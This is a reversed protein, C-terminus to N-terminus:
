KKVPKLRLIKDKGEGNSTSVYLYGDAGMTVARLRGQDTVVVIERKITMDPNLIFIRLHAGKLNAVALAGDLQGWDPGAIIGAGSVATTPTGSSWIASISEPFKQKDTMSVSENYSGPVPDWGFNGASLPNIEDDKDPGHETSLGVAGAVQKAFFALGQLNRHGFSYIRSDFPAPLNGAVASGNRDVRLVKGGLSKPDQPNTGKTADGTGIWLFGDPGFRPRCGSHRGGTNAPLGTVIDTRDSLATIDATVKFRAVRIDGSKTNFCAYLYRNQAFDPDLTMGLMGGEGAVKVDAPAALIRKKGEVAAMIEGTRQTFYMIGANDFAIDWIHTLGDLVTETTITPEFDQSQINTKPEDRSTLGILKEPQNIALYYGLALASLIAAVTIALIIVWQKKTLRKFLAPKIEDM